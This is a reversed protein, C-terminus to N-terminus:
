GQGFQLALFMRLFPQAKLEMNCVSELTQEREKFSLFPNGKWREDTM